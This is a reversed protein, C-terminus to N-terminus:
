LLCRAVSSANTLAPTVWSGAAATSSLTFGPSSIFGDNRAAADAPSTQSQVSMRNPPTTRCFHRPLTRQVRVIEGANAPRMGNDTHPETPLTSRKPDNLEGSQHAQKPAYSPNKSRPFGRRLPLADTPM